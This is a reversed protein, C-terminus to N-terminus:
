WNTSAPNRFWWCYWSVVRENRLVGLELASWCCGRWHSVSPSQNWRKQWETNAHSKADIFFDWRFAPLSITAPKLSTVFRYGSFTQNLQKGVDAYNESTKPSLAPLYVKWETYRPFTKSRPQFSIVQTSEVLKKWTVKQNGVHFTVIRGQFPWKLFGLFLSWSPWQSSGPM